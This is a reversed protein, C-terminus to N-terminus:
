SRSTSDSPHITVWLQLVLAETQDQSLPATDKPLWLSLLSPHSKDKPDQTPAFSSSRKKKKKRPWPTMLARRHNGALLYSAWHNGTAWKCINILCTHNKYCIFICSLFFFLLCTLKLLSMGVHWLCGFDHHRHMKTKTKKKLCHFNPIVVNGSSQQM